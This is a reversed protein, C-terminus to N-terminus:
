CPMPPPNGPPLTLRQHRIRKRHLTVDCVPPRLLLHVRHKKVIHHNGRTVDPRAPPSKPKPHRRQTLQPPTKQLSPKTPSLASHDTILSFHSTLLSFHDTLLPLAQNIFRFLVVSSRPHVRIQILLARPSIYSLELKHIVYTPKVARDLRAYQYTALTADGPISLGKVRGLRHSEETIFGYNFQIEPYHIPIRHLSPPHPQPPKQHPFSPPPRSPRSRRDLNNRTFGRPGELSRLLGSWGVRM